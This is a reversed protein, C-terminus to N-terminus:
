WCGTLWRSVCPHRDHRHRLGLDFGAASFEVVVAPEDLLVVLNRASWLYAAGCGWGVALPRWSAQHYTWELRDDRTITVTM